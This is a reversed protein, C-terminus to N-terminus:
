GTVPAPLPDPAAVPIGGPGVGRLATQWLPVPQSQYWAWADRSGLGGYLAIGAGTLMSTKLFQRRTFMVVGQPGIKRNTFPVAVFSGVGGPRSSPAHADM